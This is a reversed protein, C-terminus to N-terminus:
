YIVCAPCLGTTNDSTMTYSGSGDSNIIMERCAEDRDASRLYWRRAASDNKYDYRIRTVDTANQYFEYVTGESKTGAKQLGVEELALLFMKDRTTYLTDTGYTPDYTNNSVTTHDAEGLVSVFDSSLGTLFGKLYGGGVHGVGDRTAMSFKDTSNFWDSPTNGVGNIWARASSEAYNNSSFRTRGVDNVNTGDGGYKLEGLYTGSSGSTVPIDSQEYVYAKSSAYIDAKM